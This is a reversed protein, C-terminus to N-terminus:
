IVDIETLSEGIKEMSHRQTFIVVSIVVVRNNLLLRPFYRFCYYRGTFFFVLFMYAAIFGALKM